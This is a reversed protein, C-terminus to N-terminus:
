TEEDDMDLERRAVEEVHQELRYVVDALAALKEQMLELARKKAAREYGEELRKCMATFDVEVGNLKVEIQFVSPAGGDGVIEKYKDALLVCLAWGVFDKDNSHDKFDVTQM